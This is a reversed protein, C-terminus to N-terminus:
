ADEIPLLPLTSDRLHEAQEGFYRKAKDCTHALLRKIESETTTTKELDAVLLDMRQCLREAQRAIQHARRAQTASVPLSNLQLQKLLHMAKNLNMEGKLVQKALERGEETAAANLLASAM